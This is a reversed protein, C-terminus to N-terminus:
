LLNRPDNGPSQLGNCVNQVLLVSRQGRFHEGGRRPPNQASPRGPMPKVIVPEEQLMAMKQTLELLRSYVPLSSKFTCYFVFGENRDAARGLLRLRLSPTPTLIVYKHRLNAAERKEEAM